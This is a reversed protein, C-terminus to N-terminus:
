LLLQCGHSSPDALAFDVRHSPRWQTFRSRCVDAQLVPIFSNMPTWPQKPSIRYGWAEQYHVKQIFCTNIVTLAGMQWFRSSKLSNGFFCLKLHWRKSALILKADHIDKDVFCSCSRGVFAMSWGHDVGKDVGRGWSRLAWSGWLEVFPYCSTEKKSSVVMWCHFIWVCFFLGIQFVFVFCGQNQPPPKEAQNGFWFFGLLKQIWTEKGRFFPSDSLALISPVFVLFLYTRLPDKYVLIYPRNAM